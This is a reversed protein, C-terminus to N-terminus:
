KDIGHIGVRFDMSIARTTDRNGCFLNPTNDIFGGIRRQASMSDCQHM